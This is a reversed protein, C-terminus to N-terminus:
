PRYLSTDLSILAFRGCASRVFGYYVSRDKLYTHAHIYKYKENSESKPKSIEIFSFLFFICQFFFIFLDLFM